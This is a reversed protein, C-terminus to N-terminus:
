GIVRFDIKSEGLRAFASSTVIPPLLAKNKCGFEWRRVPFGLVQM